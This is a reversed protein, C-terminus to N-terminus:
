KLEKGLADIAKGAEAMTLGSFTEMVTEHGLIKSVKEHKEFDDKIGIKGLMAHIAGIQKESAPSDPNKPQPQGSQKNQQSTEGKKKYQIETVDSKKIGGQELDAWTLNKVGLIATIGIAQANTISSKLVDGSDIESPPLDIRQGNKYRTTFFPDKSPRTGIVEITQGKMFVSLKVDYRFHGDEERVKIPDGLFSWGIGFLRAVKHCGSAQLYPKGGQDTWDSANTIRLVINKIKKVADIRKEAADAIEILFDNELSVMDHGNEVM